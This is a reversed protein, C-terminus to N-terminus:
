VPPGGNVSAGRAALLTDLSELREARTASRVFQQSICLATEDLEKKCDKAVLQAASSRLVQWAAPLRPTASQSLATRFDREIGTHTRIYDEVLERFQCRGPECIFSCGAYPDVTRTFLRRHLDAFSGVARLDGNDASIAAIAARLAAAYQATKAYSWLRQRGRLQAFSVIAQELLSDEFDDRTAGIPIYEHAISSADDLLAVLKVGGAAAAAFVLKNFAQRFAPSRVASAAAQVTALQRMGTQGFIVPKTGAYTEMHAKVDDASPWDKKLDPMAAIEVLAPADDGESFVAAQGRRLIALAKTQEEDMAMCSALVERDDGAVIRQVIKLNTNKIVDSALKLPVQDAILIGQGYARVESLLNTFTEVAKGRPNAEQEGGGPAVNSLLRHAEEIVLLHKAYDAKPELRRSEALRIMLLGMVFAKEDDDSVGELEFVTNQDLMAAFDSSQRTDLMRGKGGLCLGQLRTELSARLDNTIKQDYGLEPIVEAVKDVLDSMTPWAESPVDKGEFRRNEGSLLDWGADVYIQQLCRELIQPLPTWMGFSATFLSKLLDLHASVSAGRGAEFPNIYFPSVLINGLTYVRVSRALSPDHLLSRYETKAPEIIMFHRGTKVFGKLLVFVTHTKGSGTVGAVFAHKNLEDASIECEPGKTGGVIVNGLPISPKGPDVKRIVSDFRPADRIQLGPTELRPFSVLQALQQSTIISQYELMRRYQGPGPVGETTPLMWGRALDGAAACAWTVMPEPISDEGAYIAKWLGQLAPLTDPPAQLYAAYRWMGISVGLTTQKVIANLMELYAAGIPSEIGAAKNETQISRMESLANARIQGPVSYHVPEAVIQISWRRGALARLLRDIPYLGGLPERIAPTGLGIAGDWPCPSIPSARELLDIEAFQARLASLLVAARSSLNGPAGWTACSLRAAAGTSNIHFVLPVTASALTAVFDLNEDDLAKDPARGEDVQKNPKAYGLIDISYRAAEVLAKWPVPNPIQSFTSAGHFHQLYDFHEPTTSV